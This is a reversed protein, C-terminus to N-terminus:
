DWFYGRYVEGVADQRAAHRSPEVASFAEGRLVSPVIAMKGDPSYM